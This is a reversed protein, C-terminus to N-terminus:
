PIDLVTQKDGASVCAAYAEPYRSALLDLDVKRAGNRENVTAIVRGKHMAGSHGALVAKVAATAEDKFAKWGRENRRAAKIKTIKDAVEDSVEIFGEVEAARVEDATATM